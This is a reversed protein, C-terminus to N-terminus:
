REDDGGEGKAVAAVAPQGPPFGPRGCQPPLWQTRRRGALGRDEHDGAKLM